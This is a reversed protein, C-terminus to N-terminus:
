VRRDVRQSDDYNHSRLRSVAGCAWRFCSLVGNKLSACCRGLGEPGDLGDTGMQIGEM